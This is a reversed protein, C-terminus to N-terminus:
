EKVPRIGLAKSRGKSLRPGVQAPDPKLFLYRASFQSNPESTWYNGNDGDQSLGGNYPDRWGLAPFFITSGTNTQFNWGYKNMDWDGKIQNKESARDNYYQTVFGTFANGDPVKFGPPCPDYISKVSNGKTGNHSIDWLNFYRNDASNQNHMVEPKKIYNKLCNTSVGLNEHGPNAVTHLGDPGFWRKNANKEVKGGIKRYGNSPLFPDKRGWQYYPHNDGFTISNEKQNITIEQSKDGATFKVKCSRPQYTTTRENCWGLVKPMFHYKKDVANKVEITSNLNEGTVWIHWSWLITGQADKIAIIANGERITSHDVAFSITSCSQDYNYKVETVLSSADQGLLEAKAPNAVKQIYHSRIGSSHNYFLPLMNANEIKTVTYSDLNDNGNKISNGYVLPFSYYGPADVVYCNATNMNKAGGNTGALNYPVEKSGKQSADKLVKTYETLDEGIQAAVTIDYSRSETSGEGSDTFGKLWLPRQSSWSHGDESYEVNWQVPEKKGAGNERYSKVTYQKTGGDFEFDDPGTVCFEYTWSISSTSIRYTVTKGMPWSSGKLDATLTHESQAEDVFVVELQAGEPLTQPVMMFTQAETTIEENAAGEVKKTLTQAFSTPESFSGWTNDGMNYIGKSYVNKLTVTKITGKQMGDGCVFRIATLAHQFTLPVATNQDGSLETTNAVLLDKQDVVNTPITVSVTPAGTQEKGSLAYSSNGTPAYAFFKMNYSKGPWYYDSALSYSAGSKTATANYFYNPTQTNDWSGTYSYASVGITNYMSENKVPTARTEVKHAVQSGSSFAISDTYLTHLYLPTNGGKLETVTNIAAAGDAGARTVSTWSSSVKSSFTVKPSPHQVSKELEDECSALSLSGSVMALALLRALFERGSFSTFRYHKM